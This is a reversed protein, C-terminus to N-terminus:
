DFTIEMDDFSGSMEIDDFYVFYSKQKNLDQDVVDHEIVGDPKHGNVKINEAKEKTGVMFFQFNDKEPITIEDRSFYNLAQFYGHKYKERNM